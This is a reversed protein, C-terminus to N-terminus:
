ANAKVRSIIVSLVESFRTIDYYRIYDFDFQLISPCRNLIMLPRWMNTLGYKDYACLKPNRRYKKDFAEINYIGPYSELMKYFRLPLYDIVAYWKIPDVEIWGSEKGELKGYRIGNIVRTNIITYTGYTDITGLIDLSKIPNKYVTAGKDLVVDYTTINANKLETSLIVKSSINELTFLDSKIYEILSPLSTMEDSTM